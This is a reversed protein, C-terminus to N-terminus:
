TGIRFKGDAMGQVLKLIKDEKVLCPIIKLKHGCYPCFSIPVSDSSIDLLSQCKSCELYFEFGRNNITRFKKYRM